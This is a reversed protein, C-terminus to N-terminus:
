LVKYINETSLYKLKIVGGDTDLLIDEVQSSSHLYRGNGDLTLKESAANNELDAFVFEQGDVPADSPLTFTGAGSSSSYFGIFRDTNLVQYNATTPRTVKNVASYVRAETFYLNTDEILSKTNRHGAIFSWQSENGSDSRVFRCIVSQGAQTLSFSNSFGLTSQGVISCVGGYNFVEVTRGLGPNSPLNITNTGNAATLFRHTTVTLSSGATVVTESVSETGFVDTLTAKLGIATLLDAATGTYSGKLLRLGDATNLDAATGTYSGKLLRLNILANLSSLDLVMNSTWGVGPTFILVALGNGVVAGGFNSYTGAANAFYFVEKEFSPPVTSTTAIGKYHLDGLEPILNSNILLELIPGTIDGSGNTTIVASVAAKLSDYAM